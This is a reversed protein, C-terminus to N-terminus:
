GAAAAPGDARCSACAPVTAKGKRNKKVVLRFPWGQPCAAALDRFRGLLQQTGKRDLDTVRRLSKSLRKLTRCTKAVAPSGSGREQAEAGRGKSSLRTLLNRVCTWNTAEPYQQQLDAISPFRHAFRRMRSLESEHTGLREAAQRLVQQGRSQRRSPPGFHENLLVGTRHRVELDHGHHPKWLEILRDLLNQEEPSVPPVVLVTSLTTM